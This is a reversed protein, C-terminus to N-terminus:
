PHAWAQFVSSPVRTQKGLASVGGLTLKLAEKEREIWGSVAAFLIGRPADAPPYGVRRFHKEVYDTTIEAGAYAYPFANLVCKAAQAHTVQNLM